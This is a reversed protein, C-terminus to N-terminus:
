EDPHVIFPQYQYFKNFTELEKMAKDLAKLRDMQRLGHNLNDSVIMLAERTTAMALEAEANKHSAASGNFVETRFTFLLGALLLIGAAIGTLYILKNRRPHMPVVVSGDEASAMAASLSRNFHENKLEVGQEEEFFGFLARHEKLHGPVDRGHFFERLLKEEALSTEGEYYKELLQEIERTNM